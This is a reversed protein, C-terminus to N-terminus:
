VEADCFGVIAFAIVEFPPEYVTTAVFAFLQVACALVTTATFALGVALADLM